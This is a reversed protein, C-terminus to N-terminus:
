AVELQNENVTLHQVSTWRARLTRSKWKYSSRFNLPTIACLICLPFRSCTRRQPLYARRSPKKKKKSKLEAGMLPQQVQEEIAASLECQPDCRITHSVLQIQQFLKFGAEITEYTYEYADTSEKNAIALCVPNAQSSLSNTTIGVLDFKTDGISGSADFGMQLPWAADGSRALRLILFSTSYNAYTVGKEFQYGLCVPQHLELHKGGPWNHEKVLTKFRSTFRRACGPSFVRQETLASALRSSQSFKGACKPWKVPCQERSPLPSISKMTVSKRWLICVETSMRPAQWGICVSPLNCLKKRSCLSGALQTSWRIVKPHTSRM